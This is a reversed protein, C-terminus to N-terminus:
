GSSCCGMGCRRCTPSRRSRDRGDVTITTRHPGPGPRHTIAALEDPTMSPERPDWRAASRGGGTGATAVRVVLSARILSVFVIADLLSFVLAFVNGSPVGTLDLFLIVAVVTVVASGREGRASSCGPRRDDARHARVPHLLIPEAGTSPVATGEVIALVQAAIGAVGM